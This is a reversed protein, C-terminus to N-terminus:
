PKDSLFVKKYIDQYVAYNFVDSVSEESDLKDKLDKDLLHNNTDDDSDAQNAQWAKYHRTYDAEAIQGLIEFAKQSDQYSESWNAIVYDGYLREFKKALSQNSSLIEQAKKDDIYQKYGNLARYVVYSEANLESPYWDRNYYDQSMIEDKNPSDAFLQGLTKATDYVSQVDEEEVYGDTLVYLQYVQAFADATPLTKYAEQIFREQDEKAKYYADYDRKEISKLLEKMDVAKAFPTTDAKANGFNALSLSTNIRVKNDTDDFLPSNMEIGILRGQKDLLYEAHNTGTKLEAAKENKIHTLLAAFEDPHADIIKDFEDVSLLTNTRYDDFATFVDLEDAVADASEDETESYGSCGCGVVSDDDANADVAYAEAAYAEASQSADLNSNIANHIKNASIEAYSMREVDTEVSEDQEDKDGYANAVDDFIQEFKGKITYKDVMSPAIASLLLNALNLSKEDLSQLYDATLYDYLNIKAVTAAVDSDRKIRMAVGNQRDTDTLPLASFESPEATGIDLSAYTKILPLIQKPDDGIVLKGDIVAYQGIYKEDFVYGGLASMDAYIKNNVLDVGIPMSASSQANVGQYGIQPTATIVGKRADVTGTASFYLHKAFTSFFRDRSSEYAQTQRFMNLVREKQESTVHNREFFANLVEQNGEWDNKSVTLTSKQSFDFSDGALLNVNAQYLQKQLDIPTATTTTTGVSQCASLSLVGVLALTMSLLKPRFSKTPLAKKSLMTKSLM